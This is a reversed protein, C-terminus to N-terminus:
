HGCLTPYPMSSTRTTGFHNRRVGRTAFIPNGDARHFAKRSQFQRGAGIKAMQPAVCPFPACEIENSEMYCNQLARQAQHRSQSVAGRLSLNCLPKSAPKLASQMKKRIVLRLIQHRNKSSRGMRVVTVSSSARRFRACSRDPTRSRLASNFSASEASISRSLARRRALSPPLSGFSRATGRRLCPLRHHRDVARDPDVVETPAVRRQRTQQFRAQNTGM